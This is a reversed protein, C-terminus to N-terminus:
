RWNGAMGGRRFNERETEREAGINARKPYSILFSM